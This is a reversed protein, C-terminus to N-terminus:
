AEFWTGPEHRSGQRVRLFTRQGIPITASTTFSQVEAGSCCLDLNGDGHEKTVTAILTTDRDYQFNVKRSEPTPAVEVTPAEVAEQASAEVVVGTEVKAEEKSTDQTTEVDESTKKAPM